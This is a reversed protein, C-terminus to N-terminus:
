HKSLPLFYSTAGFYESKNESHNSYNLIYFNTLRFDLINIYPSTASHGLAPTKFVRSTEADTPEFGVREAM